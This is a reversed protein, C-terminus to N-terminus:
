ALTRTGVDAYLRNRGCLGRTEAAFVTLDPDFVVSVRGHDPQLRRAAELLPTMAQPAMAEADSLDVVFRRQGRAALTIIRDRLQEAQVRDFLGTVGLVEVDAEHAAETRGHPTRAM